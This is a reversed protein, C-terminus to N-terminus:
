VTKLKVRGNGTTFNGILSVNLSTINVYYLTSSQMLPLTASDNLSIIIPPNFNQYSSDQGYQITCNGERQAAFCSFTTMCDKFTLSHNFFDLSSDTFHLHFLCFILSISLLGSITSNFIVTDSSGFISTASISVVYIESSPAPNFSASCIGNECSESGM